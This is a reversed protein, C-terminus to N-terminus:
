LFPSPRKQSFPGATIDADIFAAPAEGCFTARRPKLMMAAAERQRARRGRAAAKATRLLLM